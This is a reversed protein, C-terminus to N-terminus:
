RGMESDTGKKWLLNFRLKTYNIEFNRTLFKYLERENKLGSEIAVATCGFDPHERIMKKIKKFRITKMKSKASVNFEAKVLHNLTTKSCGVFLAWDKVYRIKAIEQELLSVAQQAKLSDRKKKIEKNNMQVGMKTCSYMLTIISLDTVLM